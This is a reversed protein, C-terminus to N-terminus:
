RYFSTDEDSISNDAFLLRQGTNPLLKNSSVGYCQTIIIIMSLTSCWFYLSPTLEGMHLSYMAYQGWCQAMM